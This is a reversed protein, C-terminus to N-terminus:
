GIAPIFECLADAVILPIRILPRGDSGKSMSHRFHLAFLEATANEGDILQGDDERESDPRGLCMPHLHAPHRKM